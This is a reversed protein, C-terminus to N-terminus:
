KFDFIKVGIEFCFLSGDLRHVIDGVRKLRTLSNSDDTLRARSFGDGGHANQPKKVVVAVNGLALYEKLALIKCLERKVLHVM